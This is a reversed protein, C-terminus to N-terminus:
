TVNEVGKEDFLKIYAATRAQKLKKLFFHNVVAIWRGTFIMAVLTGISVGATPISIGAILAIICTIAVM